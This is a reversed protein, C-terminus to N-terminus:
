VEAVPEESEEEVWRNSRETEYTYNSNKANAAKWAKASHVVIGYKVGLDEIMNAAENLLLKAERVKDSIESLEKNYPATAQQPYGILDLGNTHKNDGYLAWYIAYNNANLWNYFMSKQFKALEESTRDM